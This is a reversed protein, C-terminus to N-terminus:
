DVLDYYVTNSFSSNQYTPDVAVGHCNGDSGVGFTWLFGVGKRDFVQDPTYTNVFLSVTIYDSFAGSSTPGAELWRHSDTFNCDLTTTKKGTTPNTPCTFGYFSSTYTESDDNAPPNYSIGLPTNPISLGFDISLNGYSIPDNGYYYTTGSSFYEGEPTAARLIVQNVFMSNGSYTTPTSQGYRTIETIKSKIGMTTSFTGGDDNDLEDPWEYQFQLVLTEKYVDGYINTTQTYTKDHDTNNARPTISYENEIDPSIFELYWNQNYPKIDTLYCNPIEIYYMDTADSDHLILRIKNSFQLVGLLDYTGTTEQPAVFAGDVIPIVFEYASLQNGGGSITLAGELPLLEVENTFTYQSESILSNDSASYDVFATIDATTTYGTPQNGDVALAVSSMSLLVTIVLFISIYKKM